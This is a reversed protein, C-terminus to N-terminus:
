DAYSMIRPLQCDRPGTIFLEAPLGLLSTASTYPSPSRPPSPLYARDTPRTKTPPPTYSMSRYHSPPSSSHPPLMDSDTNRPPSAVHLPTPALGTAAPPPTYCMSHRSGTSAPSPPPVPFVAMDVDVSHNDLLPTDLEMGLSTGSSSAMSQPSRPSEVSTMDIDEGKDEDEGEDCYDEDVAGNGSTNKQRPLRKKPTYNHAGSRHRTLESSDATEFNCDSCKKNKVNYHGTFDAVELFPIPVFNIYVADLKEKPLHLKEHRKLDSAKTFGKVCKPHLCPYPRLATAVAVM